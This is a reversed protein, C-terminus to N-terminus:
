KVGVEEKNQKASPLGQPLNKSAISVKALKCLRPSIPVNAKAYYLKPKCIDLQSRRHEGVEGLIESM